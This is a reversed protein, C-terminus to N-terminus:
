QFKQKVNEKGIFHVLHKVTDPIRFINNFNNVKFKTDKIIYYSDQPWTNRWVKFEYGEAGFLFISGVVVNDRNSVNEHFVFFM